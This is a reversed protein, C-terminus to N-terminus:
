KTKECHDSDDISIRSSLAEPPSGGVVSQANWGPSSSSSSSVIEM